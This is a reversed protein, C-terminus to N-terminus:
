GLETLDRKLSERKHKPKILRNSLKLTRLVRLKTQLTRQAAGNEPKKERAEHIKETKNKPKVEKADEKDEDEMTPAKRTNM